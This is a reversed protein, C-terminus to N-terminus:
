KKKHEKIMRETHSYIEPTKDITTVANSKLGLYYATQNGGAIFPPQQSRMQVISNLTNPHNVKWKTIGEYGM